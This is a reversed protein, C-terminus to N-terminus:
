SKEEAPDPTTLEHESDALAEELHEKVRCLQEYREQHMPDITLFDKLKICGLIGFTASALGVGASLMLSRSQIEYLASRRAESHYLKTLAPTYTFSWKKLPIFPDNVTWHVRTPYSALEESLPKYWKYYTFLALGLCALSSAFHGLMANTTRPDRPNGRNNQHYASDTM